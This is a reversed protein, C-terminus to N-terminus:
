FPLDNEQEDREMQEVRSDRQQTRRNSRRLDPGTLEINYGPLLRSRIQSSFIPEGGGQRGYLEDTKRNTLLVFKLKNGYRVNLVQEIKRKDGPTWQVMAFEDIVLMGVNYAVQRFGNDSGYGGLMLLLSAEDVYLPNYDRFNMTAALRALTHVFASGLITKGTGNGGSIVMTQASNLDNVMEWMRNMILLQKENVPDLDELTFEVMSRPIGYMSMLVHPKLDFGPMVVGTNADRFGTEWKYKMKSLENM